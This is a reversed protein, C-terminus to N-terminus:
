PFANLCSFETRALTVMLSPFNPASLANCPLLLLEVVFLQLSHWVNTTGRRTIKKTYNHLLIECVRYGEIGFGGLVFHAFTLRSM